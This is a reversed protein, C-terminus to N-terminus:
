NAPITLVPGEGSDGRELIKTLLLLMSFTRKTANDDKGIWFWRGEHNVRVFTTFPPPQFESRTEIKFDTAAGRGFVSPLSTQGPEADTELISSAAISSLIQMFSRTWIAIEGSHRPTVRLVVEYRELAPNVGLLNILLRAREDRSEIPLSLYILEQEGENGPEFEIQLLGENRLSQLVRVIRHFNTSARDVTDIVQANPINNIRAVVLGFATAINADTAVLAMLEEAPLPRLLFRAYDAGQLPEMTATPRDAISGEGRVAFDDVFDLNSDLVSGASGVIRREYGAVIQKVQVFSPIDGYRLRVINLLLQRKEASALSSAYNIQDREFLEPGASQCASLLLALVPVFLCRL